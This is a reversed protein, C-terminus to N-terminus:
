ATKLKLTSVSLRLQSFGSRWIMGWRVPRWMCLLNYNVAYKKKGHNFHTQLFCSLCIRPLFPSCSSSKSLLDQCGGKRSSFCSCKGQKLLHPASIWVSYSVQGPNRPLSQVCREGCISELQHRSDVCFSKLKMVLIVGQGKCESITVENFISSSEFIHSM